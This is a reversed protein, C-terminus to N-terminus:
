TTFIDAPGILDTLAAALTQSIIKLHDDIAQVQAQTPPNSVAQGAYATYTARALTGSPATWGTAQNKLAYNGTAGELATTRADLSTASANAADADAQAVVVADVTDSLDVLIQAQQSQVAALDAQATTLTADTTQLNALIADQTDEQGEIAEASKQWWAMFQVYWTLYAKLFAGFDAFRQEFPPMRDLKLTM